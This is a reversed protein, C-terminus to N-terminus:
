VVLSIGTGFFTLDKPMVGQRAMTAYSQTARHLLSSHTNQEAMEGFTFRSSQPSTSYTGGKWSIPQAQRPQKAAHALQEAQVFDETAGYGAFTDKPTPQVPRDQKVQQAKASQNAYAEQAQQSLTSSGLRRNQGKELPLNTQIAALRQAGQQSVLSERLPDNSSQSITTM